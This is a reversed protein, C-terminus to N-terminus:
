TVWLLKACRCSSRSAMVTAFLSANAANIKECQRRTFRLVLIQACLTQRFIGSVNLLLQLSIEGPQGPLLLNDQNAFDVVPGIFM